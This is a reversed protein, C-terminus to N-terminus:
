QKEIGILKGYGDADLDKYDRVAKIDIEGDPSGVQRMFGQFKGGTLSEGNSSLIDVFQRVLKGDYYFCDQKKDYTVGFPEYVAYLKALEDPSPVPGSEVAYTQVISPNDSELEQATSTNAETIAYIQPPNIFDSIDRSDFEQQSSQELGLLKGAPNLSGDPNKTLTLDRIAHVDVSGNKDFFDIGTNAYDGVPYFDEFYRVQKGQYTLKDTTKDYVLGYEKYQSFDKTSDANAENYNSEYNTIATNQNIMNAHASKRTADATTAFIATTGTVLAFALAINLLTTKKKMKMISVIREEISNKSFGSSLPNFKSRKDAMNILSLAYAPKITEGYMKIVKEDCALELDRNMLVFMVWVMPNFWHFCLAVIMTFKWLTDFHKIHVFEHTLIYNIQQSNTFDMSKPLIIKPRLFGYALPTTTQDSVMVKLNRSLKQKSLWENIIPNNTIPLATRLQQYSKYFAIVFFTTLLLTGIAWCIEIPSSDLLKSMVSSQETISPATAIRNPIPVPLAKLPLHVASTTKQFLNYVSFQSSISVPIMLKCIVIGWLVIFTKKPLKNLTLLRVVVIILILLGASGSMQLINM